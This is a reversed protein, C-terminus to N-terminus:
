DNNIFTMKQVRHNGEDTVYLALDKDTVIDIPQDFEASGSGRNGWKALLSGNPDFKMIRHNGRDTVYVDGIHDVYIGRPEIFEGDRIGRSGWRTQFSGDISYKVVRDNGLDAIYVNDRVDIYIDMPSSLDTDGTGQRGWQRKYTGTSSFVQVRGLGSDLVYVDGNRDVAVGSPQNFQGENSGFTGWSTVHVFNSNFKSVRRNGAEAIYLFGLHDIALGIPALLEDAEQTISNQFFKITHFHDGNPFFVQVRHNAFDSVYIKGSSDIAMAGIDMFQGTDSGFGGWQFEFEVRTVAEFTFLQPFSINGASDELTVEITIQQDIFSFIFFEFAGETRGEIKPNFSFSNFETAEIVEFNVLSIDADSDQFGVRGFARSGDSAIENPFDVFLVEPALPSGGGAQQAMSAQSGGILGAILLLIAVVITKKRYDQM